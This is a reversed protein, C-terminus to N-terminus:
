RRETVSQEASIWAPFHKKLLNWDARVAIAYQISRVFCGPHTRSVLPLLAMGMSSSGSHLRAERVEMCYCSFPIFLFLFSFFSYLTPFKQIKWNLFCHSPWDQFSGQHEDFVGPWAVSPPLLSKCHCNKTSPFGKLHKWIWLCKQLIHSIQLCYAKTAHQASESRLEHSRSELSGWGEAKVAYPASNRVLSNEVMESAECIWAYDFCLFSQDNILWWYDM